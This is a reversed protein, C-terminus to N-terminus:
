GGGGQTGGWFIRSYSKQMSFWNLIVTNSTQSTSSCSPNDTSLLSNDVSLCRLTTYHLQSDFSFPQIVPTLSFTKETTFMTLSASTYLILVTFLVIYYLLCYWICCYMICYVVTYVVVYYLICYWMILYVVTCLLIYM